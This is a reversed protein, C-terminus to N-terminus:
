AAEKEFALGACSVVSKPDIQWQEYHLLSGRVRPAARLFTYLPASGCWNLTDGGRAVRSWFGSVDGKLLRAIRARDGEAVDRMVGEGARAELRDGYRRGIHALDVGLVFFLRDGERAALARLAELFEAVGPEDEPREGEGRQSFPGCLVPVVRVGPGLAHQLCLVQFEVSHEVAHCYDEATVAPGASVLEEVLALDVGAEGLPTVYPKRTLGFRDPPGYHSTGLVVFTRERLDAGLRSYAARYSAWAGDPSAHPAAIGVLAHGTRPGHGNAPEGLRARLLARLAEPEEPYAAGAHSAARTAAAAFATHRATKLALFATDELFGSRALADHLHAALARAQDGAGQHGLADELDERGHRGDFLRLFPVLPPPCVLMAEAYGLPDRILLGPHASDPSPMIDLGPRLAALPLM